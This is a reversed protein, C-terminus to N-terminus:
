FTQEFRDKAVQYGIGDPAYIEKILLEKQEALKQEYEKEMKDKQVEMYKEILKPLIGKNIFVHRTMMQKLNNCNRIAREITEHKIDSSKEILIELMDQHQEWNDHHVLTGAVADLCTYGHVNQHNVDVGKEILYKGLTYQDPLLIFIDKKTLPGATACLAHHLLTGFDDYDNILSPDAELAPIISKIFDKYPIQM